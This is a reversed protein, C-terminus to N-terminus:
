KLERYVRLVRARHYEGNLHRQIIEATNHDGDRLAQRLREEQAAKLSDAYSTFRQMDEATAVAFFHLRCVLGNDVARNECPVDPWLIAHQIPYRLVFRVKVIPNRQTMPVSENTILDAIYRDDLEEDGVILPTGREVTAPM